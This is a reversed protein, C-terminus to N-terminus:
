SNLRFAPSFNNMGLTVAAAISDFRFIEPFSKSRQVVSVSRALMALSAPTSASSIDLTTARVKSACTNSSVVFLVILLSLLPRVEMAIPETLDERCDFAFRGLRELRDLKKPMLGQNNVAVIKDTTM